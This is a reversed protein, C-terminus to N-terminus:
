VCPRSTDCGIRSKTVARALEGVGIVPLGRALPGRIPRGDVSESKEIALAPSGREQDSGWTFEHSTSHSLAESLFSPAGPLLRTPRGHHTLDCSRSDLSCAALRFDGQGPHKTSSVPNSGTVGENRFIHDFGESWPIDACTPPDQPAATPRGVHSTTLRSLLIPLMQGDIRALKGANLREM